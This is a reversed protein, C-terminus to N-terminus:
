IIGGPIIFSLIAFGMVFLVLATIASVIRDKAQKVMNPDGASTIYQIGAIVLMLVITIGVGASLVQLAMKLYAVIAGGTKVDNEVCKKDKLLPVSLQICEAQATNATLQVGNSTVVMQAPVFALAVFLAVFGSLIVRRMPWITHWCTLM